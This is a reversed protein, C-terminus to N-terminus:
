GTVVITTDNGRDGGAPQREEYQSEYLWKAAFADWVPQPSQKEPEAIRVAEEIGDDVGSEVALESRREFLYEQKAAATDVGTQARLGVGFLESQYKRGATTSCYPVEQTSVSTTVRGRHDGHSSRRGYV